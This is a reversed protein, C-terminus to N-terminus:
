PLTGGAIAVQVGNVTVTQTFTDGATGLATQTLTLVAGPNCGGGGATVSYLADQKSAHVPIYPSPNPANACAASASATPSGSAAYSAGGIAVAFTLGQAAGSALTLTLVCRFTGTGAVTCRHAQASVGGPIASYTASFAGTAASGGPKARANRAITGAGV